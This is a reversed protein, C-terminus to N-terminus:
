TERELFEIWYKLRPIGFQMNYRSKGEKWTQFCAPGFMGDGKGSEAQCVGKGHFLYVV